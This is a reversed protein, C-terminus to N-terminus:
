RLADPFRPLGHFDELSHHRIVRAGTDAVIREVKDMSAVAQPTGTRTTRSDPGNWMDGVLLVPGADVLRVLLVTHGPTHGPAQIITVSGDGFVDYDRDGEIFRTPAHELSLHPALAPSVRAEPRFAWAYEDRDVIWISSTFLSANGTHDFHTHSMSIFEIDAATLELDALMDTLKRSVTLRAAGMTRTGGPEDAITQALGVDWLLDGSPHRVLFCPAVGPVGTGAVMQGCDMAYLRLDHQGGSPARQASIGAILLLLSVGVLRLKM